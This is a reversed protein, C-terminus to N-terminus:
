LDLKELKEKIAAIIFAQRSSAHGADIASQIREPIREEKRPKVVIRDLVTKIYQDNYAIQKKRSEESIPM